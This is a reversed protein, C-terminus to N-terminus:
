VKIESITGWTREVRNLDENDSIPVSDHVINGVTNISKNIDVLLQQDVKEVEAIKAKIESM